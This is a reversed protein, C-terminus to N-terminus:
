GNGNKNQIGVSRSKLTIKYHEYAIADPEETALSGWFSMPIDKRCAWSPRDTWAGWYMGCLDTYSLQGQTVAPIHTL